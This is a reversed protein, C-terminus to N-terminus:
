DALVLVNSPEVSFFMNQGAARMRNGSLIATVQHGGFDLQMQTAGGLFQASIVSAQFENVVGRREDSLDLAEPRIAIVLPGADEKVRAADMSQFRVGGDTAVLLNAPDSKDSLLPLINTRGLFEATFRNRPSSYVEVPAGERRIKGKDLVAIRDSIVMAETQDHTVYVATIGVKVLLERIEFRMRERLLLDLNSLPEDFLICKPQLALARALAVRQQQGGSLNSPFRSETGAMGVLELMSATRDRIEGSALGKIRLGLAINEGITKHPWLAYSQFVMGLDRDEPNVLMNSAADYLVRGDLSITGHQAKELGAICRLTTTKGCGSPGLLSYVKGKEINISIDDVAQFTGYAKKLGTVSLYAV